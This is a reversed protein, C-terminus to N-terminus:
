LLLVSREVIDIMDAGKSVLRRIGVLSFGLAKHHKCTEGGAM